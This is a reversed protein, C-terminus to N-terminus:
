KKRLRALYLKPKPLSRSIQRQMAFEHVHCMLKTLLKGGGTTHKQNFFMVWWYSVSASGDFVFKTYIFNLMCRKVKTKLAHQAITEMRLLILHAFSVYAWIVIKAMENSSNTQPQVHKVYINGKYQFECNTIDIDRKIYTNSEFTHEQYWALGMYETIPILDLKILLRTWFAINSVNDRLPNFGPRAKWIDFLYIPRGSVKWCGTDDQRQLILLDSRHLLLQWAQM